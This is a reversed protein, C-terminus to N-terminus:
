IYLLVPRIDPHNHQSPYIVLSSYCLGWFITNECLLGHHTSLSRQGVCVNLFESEKWRADGGDELATSSLLTTWLCAAGAVDPYKNSICIRPGVASMSFGQKLRQKLSSELHNEHM